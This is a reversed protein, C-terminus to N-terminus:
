GKRYISTQVLTNIGHESYEQIYMNTYTYVTEDEIDDHHNMEVIDEAYSKASEFDFFLKLNYRYSRDCGVVLYYMKLELFNEVVPITYLRPSRIDVKSNKYQYLIM